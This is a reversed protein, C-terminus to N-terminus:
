SAIKFYKIVKIYHIPIKFVYYIVYVKKKNTQKKLAVPAAYPLEWALPQIPAAAAPRCQLWLLAPDLGVSHPRTKFGCEGPYQDPKNGSCWLPFEM